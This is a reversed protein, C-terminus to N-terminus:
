SPIPALSYFVSLFSFFPGPLLPVRRRPLEAVHKQPLHSRSYRIGDPLQVKRFLLGRLRPFGRLFFFFFPPTPPLQVPKSPCFWVLSFFFPNSRLRVGRPFSGASLLNPRYSLSYASSFVRCFLLFVFLPLHPLVVFTSVPLGVIFDAEPVM